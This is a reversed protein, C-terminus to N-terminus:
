ETVDWYIAGEWKRYVSNWFIQKKGSFPGKEAVLIYDKKSSPPPPPPPPPNREGLNTRLYLQM